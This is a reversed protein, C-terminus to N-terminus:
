SRLLQREGVGASAMARDERDLVEEPGFKQALQYMDHVLQYLPAVASTAHGTSGTLRAVVLYETLAGRVQEPKGRLPLRIVPMSLRGAIRYFARYM